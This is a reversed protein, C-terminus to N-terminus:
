CGLRETLPSAPIITNTGRFRSRGEGAFLDIYVRCDWKEKMSASFMQAYAGVLRYKREGWVGVEPTTLGDGDLRELESMPKRKKPSYVSVSM